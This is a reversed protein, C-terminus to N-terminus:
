ALGPAFTLLFDEVTDLTECDLPRPGTVAICGGALTLQFGEAVLREYLAAASALATLSRFRCGSM